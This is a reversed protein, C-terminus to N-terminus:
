WFRINAASTLVKGALKQFRRVLERHKIPKPM